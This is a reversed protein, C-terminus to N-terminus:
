QGLLEHVKALVEEGCISGFSDAVPKTADAFVQRQEDTLETIEMGNDRLTQLAKVNDQRELERVETQYEQISEDFAVKLDDPLSQYWENNVVNFHFIPLANINSGYKQVEYMRNSVYLGPSTTLGDVTGQQIATLLEGLGMSVPNAGWSKVAEMTGTSPITRIKLGSLDDPLLIPRKNSSIIGFGMNYSSTVRMGTKELLKEALMEGVEGESILFLKENNAFLYPCDFVEFEPINGAAGLTGTTSVTMQIVNRQLNELNESDSKGMQQNPYITTKIRGGSKELLTKGLFDMGMYIPDSTPVTTACIMEFEAEVTQAQQIASATNKSADASPSVASTSSSGSSGCATLLCIMCVLLLSLWASLHKKM